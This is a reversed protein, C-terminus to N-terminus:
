KFSTTQPNSPVSSLEVPKQSCQHESGSFSEGCCACKHIDSSFKESDDKSDLTRSLMNPTLKATSVIGPSAIGPQPPLPGAAHGSQRPDSVNQTAAQGPQALTSQYSGSFQNPPTPLISTTVPQNISTVKVGGRRWAHDLVNYAQEFHKLNFFDYFQHIFGDATYICLCDAQIAPNNLLQIFPASGHEGILAPATSKLTTARQISVISATQLTVRLREKDPKPYGFFGFVNHSIFLRGIIYMDGNVIRCTFAHQYLQETALSFQQRFFTDSESIDWDDWEDLTKDPDYKTSTTSKRKRDELWDGLWTTLGRKRRLQKDLKKRDREQARQLENINLKEQRLREEESKIIRKQEGPLPDVVPPLPPPASGQYTAPTYTIYTYENAM